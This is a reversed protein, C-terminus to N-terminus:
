IAYERFTLLLHILEQWFGRKRLRRCFEGEVDQGIVCFLVVMGAMGVRRKSKGLEREVVAGKKRGDIQGTEGNSGAAM